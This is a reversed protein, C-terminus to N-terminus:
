TPNEPYSPRQNKGQQHLKATGKPVMSGEGKGDKGLRSKAKVIFHLAGLHLFLFIAHEIGGYESTINAEPAEM